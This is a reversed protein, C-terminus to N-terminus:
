LRQKDTDAATTDRTSSERVSVKSSCHTAYPLCSPKYRHRQKAHNEKHGRTGRYKGRIDIDEKNTDGAVAEGPQM